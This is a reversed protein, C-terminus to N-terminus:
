YGLMPVKSMKPMQNLHRDRQPIEQLLRDGLPCGVGPRDMSAGDRHQLFQHTTLWGEHDPLLYFNGRLGNQVEWPHEGRHGDGAVGRNREIRDGSNGKWRHCCGDM